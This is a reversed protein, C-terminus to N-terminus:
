SFEGAVTLPSNLNNNSRSKSILTDQLKQCLFCAVQVARVAADLEKCYEEQESTLGFMKHDEEMMPSSFSQDFKSVFAIHSPLTNLSKNHLSMFCSNATEIHSHTCNESRRVFGLISPIKAGLTSCYLPMDLVCCM